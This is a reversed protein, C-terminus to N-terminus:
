FTVLWATLSMASPIPPDLQMIVRVTVFAAANAAAAAMALGIGVM